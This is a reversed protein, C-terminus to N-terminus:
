MRPGFGAQALRVTARFTQLRLNTQCPRGEASGVWIDYRGERPSSLRLRANRGPGNDDDFFWRGTPTRMLIVTDCEGDTRVEFDMRKRDAVYHIAVTPDFPINGSGPITECYALLVTGGARVESVRPQMLERASFYQPKEASSLAPCAAAVPGGCLLVLLGLGLRGM